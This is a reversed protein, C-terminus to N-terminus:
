KIGAVCPNDTAFDVEQSASNATPKSSVRWKWTVIRGTKLAQM